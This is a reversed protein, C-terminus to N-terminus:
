LTSREQVDKKVKELLTKIIHNPLTTNQKISATYQFIGQDSDILEMGIEIPIRVWKNTMEQYLLSYGEITHDYRAEVKNISMITDEVDYLFDTKECACLLNIPIRQAGVTFKTDVGIMESKEMYIRTDKSLIVAYPNVFLLKKYFANHAHWCASTIPQRSGTHYVKLGFRVGASVLRKDKIGLSVDYMDFTKVYKIKKFIINGKYLKNTLNLAYGIEQENVEFIRM